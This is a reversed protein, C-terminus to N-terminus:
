RGQGPRERDSGTEGKEIGRGTEGPRERRQGQGPRERDRGTEGKETFQTPGKGTGEKDGKRERTGGERYGIERVCVCM